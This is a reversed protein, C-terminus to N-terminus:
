LDRILNKSEISERTVDIVPDNINPNEHANIKKFWNDILAEFM